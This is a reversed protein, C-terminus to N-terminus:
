AGPRKQCFRASIATAADKIFSDFTPAQLVTWAAKQELNIVM